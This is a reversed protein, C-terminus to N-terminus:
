HQHTVDTLKVKHVFLLHKLFFAQVTALIGCPGGEDQFIGYKLNEDFFFGQNWSSHFNSNENSFLLKKISRAELLSIQSGPPSMASGGFDKSGNFGSLNYQLESISKKNQEAEAENQAQQAKIAKEQKARELFALPDSDDIKKSVWADNKKGGGLLDDLDDDEGIRKKPKAGLGGLGGLGASTTPRGKDWDEM